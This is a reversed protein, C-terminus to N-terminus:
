LLSIGIRALVAILGIALVWVFVFAGVIWNVTSMPMHDNAARKM